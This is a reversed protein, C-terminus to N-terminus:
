KKNKSHKFLFKSLKDLENNSLASLSMPPYNGKGKKTKVTLVLEIRKDFFSKQIKYDYLADFNIEYAKYNRFIPRAPYNKIIIKNKIEAFYVYEPKIIILYIFFIFLFVAFFLMIYNEFTFYSSSFAFVLSFVGVILSIVYALKIKAVQLQNNVIEM